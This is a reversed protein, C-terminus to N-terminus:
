KIAQKREISFLLQVRRIMDVAQPGFYRSDFSQPDPTTLFAAGLPIQQYLYQPLKLYGSHFACVGQVQGNIWLRNGRCGAYDGALASVQKILYYACDGESYRVKGYFGLKSFKDLASDLGVCVAVTDGISFTEIALIRYIGRDLSPTGNFIFRSSIFVPAALIALAALVTIGLLWKRLQQANFAEFLKGTGKEVRM